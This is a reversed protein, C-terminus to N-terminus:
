RTFDITFQVPATEIADGSLTRGFFRMSVNLVLVESKTETDYGAVLLDRMPQHQLQNSTMIPLNNFDLSGGPTVSGFIARVLKPPTRTGTDARTFTVEYSQVNVNMLASSNGNPNKVILGLSITGIQVLSGNSDVATNVSVTVPIGDFGTITLLVGGGDTRSVSQPCGLLATCLVALILITGKRNM